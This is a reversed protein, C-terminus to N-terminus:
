KVRCSHTNSHFTEARHTQASTLFYSNIIEARLPLKETDVTKIILKTDFFHPFGTFHQAVGIRWFLKLELLTRRSSLGEKPTKIITNSLEALQHENLQTSIQHGFTIVYSECCKQVWWRMRYRRTDQGSADTNIDGSMWEPKIQMNDFLITESLLHM